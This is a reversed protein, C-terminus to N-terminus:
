CWVSMDAGCMVDCPYEGFDSGLGSVLRSKYYEPDGVTDISFFCLLVLMDHFLAFRSIPYWWIMVFVFVALLLCYYVM